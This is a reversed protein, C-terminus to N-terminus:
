SLKLKEGEAPKAAPPEKKMGDILKLIEILAIFPLCYAIIWMWDSVALPVVGFLTRLFPVYLICLHAFFISGIVFCMVPNTWPPMYILSHESISGISNIMELILLVTLSLTTPKAKGISFYSCPNSTFNFSGYNSINKSEPKWSPCATWSTIQDWSILTHLDDSEMFMYWQMFILLTAIGIYVGIILYKTILWNSTLPEDYKRPKKNMIGPDVPNFIFPISPLSDTAINIWLLHVSTLIEPIGLVSAFFVAIIEGINSSIISKLFAHINSYIIRGEKVSDVISIFSDEKLILKSSEKAIDTGAQGFAVGIQSQRLCQAEHVSKGTLLIIEGQPKMIQVLDSKHKPDVRSFILAGEKVRKAREGEDPLLTFEKGDIFKTEDASGLGISNGIAVALEKSDGTVMIVRIGALKCMDIAHEIGPLIHNRM